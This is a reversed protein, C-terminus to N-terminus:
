SIDFYMLVRVSDSEVSDKRIRVVLAERVLDQFGCRNENSIIVSDVNFWIVYQGHETVDADYAYPELAPIVDDAMSVIKDLKDKNFGSIKGSAVSEEVVRVFKDKRM